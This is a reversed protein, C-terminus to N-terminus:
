ESCMQENPSHLDREECCMQATFSDLSVRQKILLKIEEQQFSFAPGLASHSSTASVEAPRYKGCPLQGWVLHWSHKWQSVYVSVLVEPTLIIQSSSLPFAWRLFLLSMSLTPNLHGTQPSNDVDYKPLHVAATQRACLWQGEPVALPAAPIIKSHILHVNLALMFPM